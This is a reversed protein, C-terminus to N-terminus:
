IVKQQHQKVMEGLEDLLTKLSALEAEKKEREKLFESVTQLFVMALIDKKDTITYKKEFESLNNKIMQSAEEIFYANEKTVKLPYEKGAIDIKLTVESM